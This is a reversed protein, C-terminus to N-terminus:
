SLLDHVDLVLLIKGDGMLTAGQVGVTEGLIGSTSKLMIDMREGLRDVEIAGIQGGVSMIVLTAASSGRSEGRYDLAEALDIVPITQDRWVYAKSLGIASITDRGVRVTELVGELPIGFMQDGVAVTMVRTMMVSFPLLLRVISGRGRQSEMSVQGGLAEVAVRAADMGVGRGSIDTVDSKTSFGPTFILDIMDADSAAAIEDASAVGRQLAVERVKAIDVGGGDDEVEIAVNEGRRGARLWITATRSKGAAERQKASEVGHDMANRLIHLLPEYLAEVVAKDAETEEGELVLRAPKGSKASMERVLRPFRQFVQRIPLVRLAIVAKQLEALLHDLQAHQEKLSSALAGDRGIALKALHGIANKAIILEGTLAVLEDVRGADVRLTRTAAEGSAAPSVAEKSAPDSAEIEELVRAIAAALQAPDTEKEIRSAQEARGVHRLVNTATRGASASRGRAGDADTEALVRIQAELVARASATLGRAAVDDGSEDAGRKSFRAIIIEASADADAPLAEDTAIGDLWRSVQDLCELCAGVVLPSLDAAGARAAALVDEAAHVARAMAAFNMIGASGKLTHFARFASDLKAMDNPTQELALLDRTAAEVLERCEVLFQDIFEDM